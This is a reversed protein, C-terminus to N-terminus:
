EESQDDLLAVLERIDGKWAIRSYIEWREIHSESKGIQLTTKPSLTELELFIPDCYCESSSGFDYYIKHPDYEARKVFLINNRWYAIWGDQNPLGVKLQGKDMDARITLYKNGWDIQESRLDTYPWVVISRNPLTPNEETHGTFQPMVAVGGPKLQTIAWPALNIPENGLNTLIHEVHVTAGGSVLQIWIQKQIGTKEEVLQKLVVGHDMSTVEIPSDDPLYTRMPDEPAYWLLHGGCFHFLGSGTCELAADGLEAFINDSGNVQLFIVLPGVSKTILLRLNHNSLEVCEIGQYDTTKMPGWDREGRNAYVWCCNWWWNIWDNM